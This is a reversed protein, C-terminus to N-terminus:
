CPKAEPPRTGRVFLHFMSDLLVDVDVNARLKEALQLSVFGHAQVWCIVALQHADGEIVGAEVLAGLVRRVPAWSSEVIAEQEATLPEKPPDLQFMTRYLHPEDLGFRVYARYCARLRELPDPEDRIAAEVREALRRFGNMRVAQFIEDKNAFYRYPTMASVGLAAAIRRLTVGEFGHEAFMRAAVCCLDSRFSEIETDSLSRPM